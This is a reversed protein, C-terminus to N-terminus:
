YFTAFKEVAKPASGTVKATAPTSQVVPSGKKQGVQPLKTDGKFAPGKSAGTLLSKMADINVPPHVGASKPQDPTSPTQEKPDLYETIGGVSMIFAIALFVGVILSKYVTVAFIGVLAIVIGVPSSLLSKLQHPVPHTFFAVYGIILAVLGLEPTSVRM